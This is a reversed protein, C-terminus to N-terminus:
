VPWRRPVIKRLKRTRHQIEPVYIVGENVLISLTRATAELLMLDREYQPYKGLRGDVVAHCYHCGFAGLWDPAKLGAGSLDPMRVHCLVTTENQGGGVCGPARIECPRGHALLTIKM